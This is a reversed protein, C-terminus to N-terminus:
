QKFQYLFIPFYAVIIDNLYQPFIQYRKTKKFNINIFGYVLLNTQHYYAVNLEKPIIGFLDLKLHYPKGHDSGGLMHLFNDKTNILNCCRLELLTKGTNYWKENMIDLIFINTNDGIVLLFSEYIIMTKMANKVKVNLKRLKRTELDYIWCGDSYIILQNFDKMHNFFSYVHSDVSEKKLFNAAFLKCIKSNKNITIHGYKTSILHFIGNAYCTFTKLKQAFILSLAISKTEKDFEIMETKWKLTQLNLIDFRFVTILKSIIYLEHEVIIKSVAYEEPYDTTPVSSITKVSNSDLDYSLIHKNHYMILYRNYLLCQDVGIVIPPLQLQKRSVTHTNLPSLREDNKDIWEDYREHWGFYHVKIREDSIDIIKCYGWNNLIDLVDVADNVTLTNAWNQEIKDM